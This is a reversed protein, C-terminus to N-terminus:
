RSVVTPVPVSRHGRRVTLSETVSGDGNAATLTYTTAATDSPYIAMTGIEPVQGIGENLEVMQSQVVEWRLTTSEGPNLIVQDVSFLGIIPPSLASPAAVPGSTSTTMSPMTPSTHGGCAVSTLSVLLIASYIKM